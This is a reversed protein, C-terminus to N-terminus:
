EHPYLSTIHRITDLSDFFAEVVEPDFQKGSENRLTELVQEENWAEKYCRQSGLADYVDAIAVIRGFLPIEEGKKGLPAGDMTLKDPLPMGSRRDVHGPYGNGDWREHHNLAVAYAAEDVDSYLEAFLQAGLVTHQKMITYEEPTFRGPKKMIVDSIAVKGVDHLMAAMTLIDKNREIEEPSISRKIAWTEYIASSYAGVRKVHPGTEKPDRLEAMKNMRMIIGRTLKAREVANAANNAFHVLLPEDEVAFPLHEDGNRANILQLVGTIEGRVTKLPFTLMSRTRYGAIDDYSRDFSYPTTDSLQYVDPINIAEGTAAVHGAISRHDIPITFTSYILKKGPPLNKQLTDNQTYSFHLRDDERIYISGADARTFSRAEFLIKELLLDIDNIRSIELGLDIIRQLRGTIKTM